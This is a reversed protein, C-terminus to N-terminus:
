ASKSSFLSIVQQVGPKHKSASVRQLYRPNKPSSQVFDTVPWKTRTLEKYTSPHTIIVGLRSPCHPWNSGYPGGLSQKDQKPIVCVWSLMVVHLAMLHSLSPELLDPDFWIISQLWNFSFLSPQSGLGVALAVSTLHILGLVLSTHNSQILRMLFM